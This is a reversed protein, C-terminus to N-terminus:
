VVASAHFWANELKKTIEQETDVTYRGRTRLRLHEVEQKHSNRTWKGGADTNHQWTSTEADAQDSTWFLGPSPPPNAHSRWADIILFAQDVPHQRVMFFFIKQTEKM